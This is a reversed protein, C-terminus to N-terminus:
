GSTEPTAEPPEQRPPWGVVLDAQHGMEALMAVPEASRHPLVEQAPGAPVREYDRTVHSRRQAVGPEIDGPRRTRFAVQPFHPLLDVGPCPLGAQGRAWVERMREIDIPSFLGASTSWQLPPWRPIPGLFGEPLPM